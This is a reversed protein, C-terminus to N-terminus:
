LVEELIKGYAPRSILVGVLVGIITTIAFGKMMGIGVLGLVTMAMITTAAATFVIFFARKIRRKMSYKSKERDEERLTESTIVIQDDVSSGIAAIIGGIAALDITWGILSAVGLIMTVESFSTILVPVVIKKKRYIISVLAAVAILAGLGALLSSRLMEEGLRPSILDMQVRKVEVPLEGSDLVSQLRSMEEQADEKTSRTGTIVPEQNEEGILTDAITLQTVPERDLFLHIIPNDQDQTLSAFRKAGRESIRVRFRFRYLDENPQDVRADSGTKYVLKIDESDYIKGGLALSDDPHDWADAVSGEDNTEEYVHDRTETFNWVEFTIDSLQVTDNVKLLEGDYTYGEETRGFSYTEGDITVDRTENKRFNMVRPIYAEFKGARELLERVVDRGVGAAEIQIYEGGGGGLKEFEMEELGFVNLRTELTTITEDLLRDRETRNLDAHEEGFQPELLVRTGGVLDIGFNLDILRTEEVDIGLGEGDSQIIVLGEDATQVNMTGEYNDFEMLDQPSKISEGNISVLRDGGRVKGSFPSGDEINQIVAGEAFPNHFLAVLSLAVAVILVWIRWEDLLNKVTEIM